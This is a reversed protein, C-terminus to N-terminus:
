DDGMGMKKDHEMAMRHMSEESMDGEHGGEGQSPDEYEVPMGNVEKVEVYAEEGDVKRVVGKVGTLEVEDGVEPMAGKGDETDVELAKLPIAIMSANHEDGECGCSSVPAGGPLSRHGKTGVAIVLVPMTAKM